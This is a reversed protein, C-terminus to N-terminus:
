NFYAKGSFAASFTLTINNFDLYEINGIVTQGSSDLITVSPYKGLNHNILWIDIASMQNHVYTLDGSESNSTQITWNTNTIGGKLLYETDNEVVYVKLGIQRVAVIISDRELLSSVIQYGGKLDRNHLIYYPDSDSYKKLPGFINPM